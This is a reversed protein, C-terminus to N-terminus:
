HAPAPSQPAPAASPQAPAAGHHTPARLQQAQEPSLKRVASIAMRGPIEGRTVVYDGKCLQGNRELDEFGLAQRFTLDTVPAFLKVLYPDQRTPAYVILTSDDLAVWDYVTRKFICTETGPLPAPAPAPSRAANTACAGAGLAM